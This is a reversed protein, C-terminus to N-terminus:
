KKGRALQDRIRKLADLEARTAKRRAKAAKRLEELIESYRKV